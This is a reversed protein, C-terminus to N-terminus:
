LQTTQRKSSEWLHAETAEVKDSNWCNNERNLWIPEFPCISVLMTERFVGKAPTSTIM